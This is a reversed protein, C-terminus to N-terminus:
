LPAPPRVHTKVKLMNLYATIVERGEGESEIRGKNLLLVRDCIAEVANLDHSVFIITRGRRKFHTIENLCKKQFSEDGVTLVEDILLIDFDVHIAIAFGLRMYMGASYHKLPVDIFSGLESFEVISDLKANMERHSFGLISGNLFINERGILDPHFGAGLELLASVKGDVTVKGETPVLVGSILKLTTSKGSGNEGIIGLTEGVEVAFSVDRLAWFEERSGNRRFLNVMVEQFSRNREHHLIFRKSVHQFHVAVM